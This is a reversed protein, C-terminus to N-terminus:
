FLKEDNSKIPAQVLPNITSQKSSILSKRQNRSSITPTKSRIAFNRSESLEFKPKSIADPTTSRTNITRSDFEKIKNSLIFLNSNYFRKDFSINASKFQSLKNELNLREPRKGLVKTKIKNKPVGTKEEAFEIKEFYDLNKLDDLAEAVKGLRYLALARVKFIEIPPKEQFTKLALNMCEIADSYQQLYILALSKNFYPIFSSPQSKIAKDFSVISETILGLKLLCIGLNIQCPFNLHDIILM